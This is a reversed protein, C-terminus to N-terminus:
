SISRAAISLTLAQIINCYELHIEFRLRPFFKVERGSGSFSGHVCRTENKHNENVRKAHNRGGERPSQGFFRILQCLYLTLAWSFGSFGDIERHRTEIDCAKRVVRGDIFSIIEGFSDIQADDFDLPRM